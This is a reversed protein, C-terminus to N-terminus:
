QRTRNKNRSKDTRTPRLMEVGMVASFLSIEFIPFSDICINAWLRDKGQIPSCIEGINGIDTRTPRPIEVGDCSLFM